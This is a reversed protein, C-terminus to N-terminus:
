GQLTLNFLMAKLLLAGMVQGLCECAPRALEHGAMRKAKNCAAGSLLTIVGRQCPHTRQCHSAQQHQTRLKRVAQLPQHAQCVQPLPLTRSCAEALITAHASCSLWAIATRFM